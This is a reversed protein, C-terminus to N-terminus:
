NLYNNKGQLVTVKTAQSLQTVTRPTDGPYHITSYHAEQYGGPESRAAAVCLSYYLCYYRRAMDVLFICM